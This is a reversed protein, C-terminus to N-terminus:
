GSQVPGSRLNPALGLRVAEAAAQARTRVSLKRLLSSVHHEVTRQSLFLREAIEANRLGEVLLVLVEVERATLGAPNDRTSPRPGRTVGRVGLERLRRAVVAAAAPAGLAQLEGFARRLPEEEDADAAALAAEYRCSQRQWRAEAEAWRGALQLAFPGGVPFPVPEDIGTRRRWVALEAVLPGWRLEQAARLTEATAEAVAARDGALWAAEARAAAVSGFRPLEHTPRALEWAEDLAQWVGPDGRRARVLGLVELANIRPSISTRPVRLVAAAHEAAESLRGQDLAFRAAFSLFYLRDRDLGQDACYSVGLDLYPEIPLDYRRHAVPSGVLYLMAGAIAVPLDAQRAQELCELLAIWADDAPLSSGLTMLAWVAIEREGLREALALSREAWPRVDGNRGSAWLTFSRNQWAAALERGPPLEELVAVAEKGARAAEESRGPCWLILSLWTLAGGERLRDGVARHCELAEEIAEVAAENQDTVYCERSRREFLSAREEPSLSGGFRLARAYQAAAERHAAVASAREAAAPAFELVAPTDGAAEAHHALRAFDPDGDPPQRLACLVADHLAVRRHSDISEEVALRALEHRFGIGRPESRLVGSAVCEDLAALSDGAVAELLWLETRQPVIAVLDLLHRAQESLRATRALVADRVTAPVDGVGSALVETVFFPNGDTRRHLEDGDLGHPEALVRVADPSLPGLQLRVVGRTTALDGLLIQLQHTRPLADNRYTALVLVGLQEVRRGLLGLIDLTAEDAWHVDEVVLVATDAPPMAGVLAEFVAPAPKGSSIAAGLPGGVGLGIDAFPGLPRPTRLGDCAGLLVLTSEPIRACFGGVLASKGIGAEGSVFVLRGKGARAEVFADDLVAIQADRELLENAVAVPVRPAVAMDDITIGKRPLRL